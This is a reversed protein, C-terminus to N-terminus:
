KSYYSEDCGQKWNLDSKAREVAITPQDDIIKATMVESGALVGGIESNSTTVIGVPSANEKMISIQATKIERMRESDAEKRARQAVSRTTADSNGISHSDDNQNNM